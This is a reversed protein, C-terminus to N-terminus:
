ELRSRWYGPRRRLHAVALVVIRHTQIQYVVGYPFRHTLCRRLGAKPDVIAWASPSHEIRKVTSHVEVAFQRGLGTRQREYHDTADNLDLSAQPHFHVKV